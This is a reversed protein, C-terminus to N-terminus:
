CWGLPALGVLRQRGCNHRVGHPVKADMANWGANTAIAVRGENPHFPRILIMSKPTGDLSNESFRFQHALDFQIRERIRSKRARSKAVMCGQGRSRNASIACISQGDPLDSSM